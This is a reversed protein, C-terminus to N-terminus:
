LPNLCHNAQRGHCSLLIHTCAFRWAKVTDIRAPTVAPIPKGFEWLQATHLTSVTSANYLELPARQISKQM